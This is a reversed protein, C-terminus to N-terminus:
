KWEVKLFHTACSMCPDYARILKEIEYSIKDKPMGEKLKEEVLKGINKSMNIQNQSTPIVIEANNVLHNYIGLRYYLTGRPAEVVGIGEGSKLKPAALKEEKVDIGELLEISSDICHVIEIAQALNNHFINSSPFAKLYEAADRQTDRHLARKNLNLRALAGIMYSEGLFKFGPAQSYPIVVRYFHDLFNSKSICYGKTSCIEGGIYSFEKNVLSFFHADYRFEFDCDYFIQVFDLAAQRVKKLEAAVAKLEDKKPFRVFGGVTTYFPHVARGALLTDLKNGAAKIDFARHLLEHHKEEFDLVSDKGLIDPLCFLFLHMGHDRINLGYMVLNRLIRTQESPEIKLANEVAEICGSLHAISCTGCIRSVIQQVNNYPKGRAAEKYFRKNEVIKLQVDKVRGDKIKIGLDAHGEIKSLGELSIDFDADHM